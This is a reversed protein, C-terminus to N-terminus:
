MVKNFREEYHETPIEKQKETTNLWKILCKKYMDDEIKEDDLKEACEKSNGCFDISDSWESNFIMDALEEISMDRFREFRTRAKNKPEEPKYPKPLSQWANVFLDHSVCSETEDGVYFAGGEDDEEYRGVVPISFNKFSLLIYEDTNPLKEECPIWGTLNESLNSEYEEALQKIIDIAIAMGNSYGVARDIQLVNARRKEEDALYLEEELRDILKEVFEKM